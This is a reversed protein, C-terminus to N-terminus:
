KEAEPFRHKIYGELEKVIGSAMVKSHYMHYYLRYIYDQSLAINEYKCDFVATPNGGVRCLLYDGPELDVKTIANQGTTLVRAPLKLMEPVLEIGYKGYRELFLFREGNNSIKEWWDGIDDDKIVAVLQNQARTRPGSDSYRTSVFTVTATADSGEGSILTGDLFRQYRGSDSDIYARGDSFYVYLTANFSDDDSLVIIDWINVLSGCGALSDKDTPSIVCFMYGLGAPHSFAFTTEVMGRSGTNMFLAPAASINEISSMVQVGPPIYSDSLDGNAVSSGGVTAWWDSIDGYKIAAIQVGPMMGFPVDDGEDVDGFAVFRVTAVAEDSESLAASLATGKENAESQEQLGALRHEDVCAVAGLTLIICLSGRLWWVKILRPIGM